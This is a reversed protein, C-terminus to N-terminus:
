VSTYNSNAILSGYTKQNLQLVPSKKTYLGDANAPLAALLSAVLLLSSQPLMIITPDSQFLYSSHVFAIRAGWRADCTRSVFLSFALDALFLVANIVCPTRFSKAHPPSFSRWNPAGCGLRM